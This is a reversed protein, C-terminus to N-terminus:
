KNGMVSGIHFVNNWPKDNSKIYGTGSVALFANNGDCTLIKSNGISNCDCIQLSREGIMTNRLIYGPPCDKIHIDM